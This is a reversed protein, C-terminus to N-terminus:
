LSYFRWQMANNNRKNKKQEFFGKYLENIRLIGCFHSPIDLSVKSKVLYNKKLDIKKEFKLQRRM